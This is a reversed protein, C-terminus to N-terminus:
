RVIHCTTVMVECSFHTEGDYHRRYVIVYVSGTSCTAYDDDPRVSLKKHASNYCDEVISVFKEFTKELVTIEKWARFTEELISKNSRTPSGPYRTTTSLFNM